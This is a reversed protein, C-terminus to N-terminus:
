VYGKLLDNEVAKNLAETSWNDPMDAFTKSADAFAFGFSGLVLAICLIALLTKKM